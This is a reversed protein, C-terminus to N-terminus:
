TETIQAGGFDDVSHFVFRGDGDFKLVAIDSEGEGSEGMDHAGEAVLGEAVDGDFDELVFRQAVGGTWPIRLFIFVAGKFGEGTASLLDEEHFVGDADGLEFELGADDDGHVVVGARMEEDGDGVEIKSLVVAAVDLAHARPGGVEFGAVGFPEGAVVGVGDGVHSRM